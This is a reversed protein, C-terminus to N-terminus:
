PPTVQEPDPGIEFVGGSGTLPREFPHWDSWFTGEGDTVVQAETVGRDGDEQFAELFIETFHAPSAAERLEAIVRRYFLGNDESAM